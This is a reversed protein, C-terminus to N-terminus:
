GTMKLGDGPAFIGDGDPTPLELSLKSWLISANPGEQELRRRFYLAAERWEAATDM